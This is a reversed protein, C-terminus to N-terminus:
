GLIGDGVTLTSSQTDLSRGASTQEGARPLEIELSPKHAANNVQASSIGVTPHAQEAVGKDHVSRPRVAQDPGVNIECRLLDAEKCESATFWVPMREQFGDSIMQGFSFKDINLFGSMFLQEVDHPM